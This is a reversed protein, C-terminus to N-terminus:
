TIQDLGANKLDTADLERLKLIHKAKLTTTTKMFSFGQKMKRVPRITIEGYYDGEVLAFLQKPKGNRTKQYCIELWSDSREVPYDLWATVAPTGAIWAIPAILTKMLIGQDACAQIFSAGDESPDLLIFDPKDAFPQSFSYDTKLLQPLAARDHLLLALSTAAVSAVPKQSQQKDFMYAVPQPLPSQISELTSRAQQLAAKDTAMRQLAKQDLQLTIMQEVSVLTCCTALTPFLTHSCDPPLQIEGSASIFGRTQAQKAAGHWGPAPLTVPQQNIVTHFLPLLRIARQSANYDHLAMGQHETFLGMWDARILRGDTQTRLWDVVEDLKLWSNVPLSGLLTIAKDTDQESLLEWGAVTTLMFTQMTASWAPWNLADAHLQEDKDILMGSAGMAAIYLLSTEEGGAPVCGMLKKLDNKRIHRQRTLGPHIFQMAVWHRWILQDDSWASPYEAICPEAQWHEKLQNTLHERAQQWHSALVDRAESTLRISTFSSDGRRTIFSLLGLRCLQQLGDPIGELLSKRLSAEQKNGYYHHRTIMVCHIEPYFERVAEFSELHQHQLTLLLSWDHESLQKSDINHCANHAHVALWGALENKIPTPQLMTQQNEAPVLQNLFDVPLAASLELLTAPTDSEDLEVAIEAPLCYHNDHEFIVGRELLIGLSHLLPQDIQDCAVSGGARALQEAVIEGRDKGFLWADNQKEREGTHIAAGIVKGYILARHYCGQYRNNLTSLSISKCCVSDLAKEFATLQADSCRKRWDALCALM